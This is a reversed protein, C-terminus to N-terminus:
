RRRRRRPRCRWATAPSSARSILLAALRGAGEALQAYTIQGGDELLFCPRDSATILRDYLNM